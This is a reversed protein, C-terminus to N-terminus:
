HGFEAPEYIVKASRKVLWEVILAVVASAGASV